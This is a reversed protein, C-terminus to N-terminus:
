HSGQRVFRLQLVYFTTHLIITIQYFQLKKQLSLFNVFYNFIYYRELFSFLNEEKISNNNMYIVSLVVTLLGLHVEEKETLHLHRLNEDPSEEITNVLIFMGKKKKEKDVLEKLDYGFVEKLDKIASILVNTQTDKSYKNLGIASMIDARKFIPRKAEQTIVHFIADKVFKLKDQQNLEQNAKVPTSPPMKLSFFSLIWPNNSTEKNSNKYDQSLKILESTQTVVAFDVICLDCGGTWKSM